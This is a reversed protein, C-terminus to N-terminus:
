KDKNKIKYKNNKNYKYKVWNEEFVTNDLIITVTQYYEERLSVFIFGNFCVYWFCTLFSFLCQSVCVYCINDLGRIGNFFAVTSVVALTRRERM